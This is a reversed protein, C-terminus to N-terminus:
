LQLHFRPTNLPPIWQQVSTEKIRIGGTVDISDIYLTDDIYRSRDSGDVTKDRSNLIVVNNGSVIRNGSGGIILSHNSDSILNKEGILVASFRTRVLVSDVTTRNPTSVGIELFSDKGTGDEDGHLIFREDIGRDGRRFVIDTYLGTSEDREMQMNDSLQLISIIEKMQGMNRHIKEDRERTKHEMMVIQRDFVSHIDNLGAICMNSSNFGIGWMLLFGGTVFLLLLQPLKDM